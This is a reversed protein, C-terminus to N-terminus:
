QEKAKVRKLLEPDIVSLGAARSYALFWVKDGPAFTYERDKPNLILEGEHEYGLVIVEREFCVASLERFSKGQWPASAECVYIENSDTAFSLLHEYVRTVGSSVSAQALLREAVSEFSVIEIDGASLNNRRIHALATGNESRSVELCVRLNPHVSLAALLSFVSHGDSAEAEPMTAPILLSHAAALNARALVNVDNARGHMFYVREYASGIEADQSESIILIPRIDGSARHVENRLEAVIRKVRESWGLIVVHNSISQITENM